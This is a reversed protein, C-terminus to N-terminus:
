VDAPYAKTEDSIRYSEIAKKIAKNHTWMELRQEQIFPM